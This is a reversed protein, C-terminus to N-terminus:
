FNTKEVNLNMKKNSHFVLNLKAFLAVDLKDHAAIPNQKLLNNLFSCDPPM